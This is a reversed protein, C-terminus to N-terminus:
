KWSWCDCGTSSNYWELGIEEPGGITRCYWRSWSRYMTFSRWNNSSRSVSFIWIRTFRSELFMLLSWKCSNTWIERYEFLFFAPSLSSTRESSFVAEKYNKKWRNLNKPLLSHRPTSFYQGFDKEPPFSYTDRLNEAFEDFRSMNCPTARPTGTSVEAAAVSIWYM